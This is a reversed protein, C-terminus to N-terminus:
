RSDTAMETTDNIPVREFFSPVTRTVPRPVIRATMDYHARGVAIQGFDILFSGAMSIVRECAEWSVETLRVRSRSPTDIEGFSNRASFFGFPSRIRSISRSRTESVLRSRM